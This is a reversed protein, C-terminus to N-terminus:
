LKVDVTAQITRSARSDITSVSELWVHSVGVNFRSEFQKIEEAITRELQRKESQLDNITYVV